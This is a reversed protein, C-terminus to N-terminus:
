ATVEGNDHIMLVTKGAGHKLGKEAKKASVYEMRVNRAFVSFRGNPYRELVAAQTTNM